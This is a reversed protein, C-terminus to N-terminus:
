KKEFLKASFIVKQPESFHEIVYGVGLMNLAQISMRCQLGEAKWQDITKLYRPKRASVLLEDTRFKNFIATTNIRGNLRADPKLTGKTFAVVWYTREM